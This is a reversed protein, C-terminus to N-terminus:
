KLIHIGLSARPYGWTGSLYIVLLSLGVIEVGLGIRPLGDHIDIKSPACAAYAFYSFPHIKEGRKKSSCLSERLDM